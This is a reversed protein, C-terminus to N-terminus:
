TRPRSLPSEDNFFAKSSAVHSPFSFPSLVSRTSPFGFPTECLLLFSVLASGHGLFIQGRHFCKVAPFPASFRTTRIHATWSDKPPWSVPFSPSLFVMTASIHRKFKDGVLLLFDIPLLADAAGCPPITSIPDTSSVV